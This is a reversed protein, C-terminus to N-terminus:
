GRVFSGFILYGAEYTNNMPHKLLIQKELPMICEKYMMTAIVALCRLVVQFM